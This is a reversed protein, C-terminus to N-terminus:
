VFKRNKKIHNTKEKDYLIGNYDFTKDIVFVTEPIKIEELYNCDCFAEEDIGFIEEPVTFSTNKRGSPYRLLVNKDKHKWYLIGDKSIYNENGKEINIEELSNCGEFASNGIIELGELLEIDKLHSCGIFTGSDELREDGIKKINKPINISELNSCNKFVCLELDQM